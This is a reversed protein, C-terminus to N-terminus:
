AVFAPAVMVMDGSSSELTSTITYLSPEHRTAEDTDSPRVSWSKSSPISMIDEEPLIASTM